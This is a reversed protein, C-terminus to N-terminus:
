KNKEKKFLNKFYLSNERDIIKYDKIANFYCDSYDIKPIYNCYIMAIVFELQSIYTEM